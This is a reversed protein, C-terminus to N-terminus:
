LTPRVPVGDVVSGIGWCRTPRVFLIEPGCTCRPQIEIFTGKLLIVEQAEPHGPGRNLGSYFASRSVDLLGASPVARIPGMRLPNPPIRSVMPLRSKSRTTVECLWGDERTAVVAPASVSARQPIVLLHGAILRVVLVKLL